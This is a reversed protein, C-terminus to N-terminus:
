DVMELWRVTAKSKAAIPFALAEQEIAERVPASLRRRARLTVKRQQREWAGVVEGDVLIPQPAWGPSKAPFVFDRLERDPVLLERDLKSVADDIPILRVGTVSEARELADVDAELVFRQEGDVDVGVLEPEIARWTKTADGREAGTWKRMLDKTTPGFWGVFRRALELRADEPDMDPKEVPILWIHSADWRIHVRGTMASVRVLTPWELEM